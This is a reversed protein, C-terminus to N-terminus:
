LSVETDPQIEWVMYDTLPARIQDPDFATDRMYEDYVATIRLYHDDRLRQEAKKWANKPLWWKYSYKSGRRISMRQKAWEITGNVASEFDPYIAAVVDSSDELHDHNVVVCYKKRRM